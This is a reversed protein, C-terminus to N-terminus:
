RRSHGRPRRRARWRRRSRQAGRDDRRDIRARGEEVQDARAFEVGAEHALTCGCGCSPCRRWAADPARGAAAVEGADVCGSRAAAQDDRGRGVMDFAGEIRGLVALERGLRHHLDRQGAEGIGDSAGAPRRRATPPRGTHARHASPPSPRRCASIGSRADHRHELAMRRADALDTRWASSSVGASM